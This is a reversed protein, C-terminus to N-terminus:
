RRPEPARGVPAPNPFQPGVRPGKLSVEQDTVPTVDGWTRPSALGAPAGRTWGCERDRPAEGTLLVPEPVAAVDLAGVRAGVAPLLLFKESYLLSVRCGPPRQPALPV